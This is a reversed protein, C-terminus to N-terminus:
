SIWSKYEEGFVPSSPQLKMSLVGYITDNYVLTTRLSTYPSPFIYRFSVCVALMNSLTLV